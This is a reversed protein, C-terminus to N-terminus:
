KKISNIYAILLSVVITLVMLVVSLTEYAQTEGVPETPESRTGSACM